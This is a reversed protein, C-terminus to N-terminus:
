PKATRFAMRSSWRRPRSLSIGPEASMLTGNVKLFSGGPGPNRDLVIQGNATITLSGSTTVASGNDLYLTGAVTKLGTLASNGSTESADAIFAHSGVLDLLSDYAITTIQGKGFEILADGSLSVNGYVTGATGFGAASAVDLTVEATSSGLLDITGYYDPDSPDSTNFNVIRAADFTSAASLASNGAVVTGSNTLVGGITLSSGGDGSDVDLELGCGTGDHGITVGGTVSNAGADEFDLSGNKNIRISAVTGFSATVTPNGARLAGIEVDSSATPLGASWDSPTDWNGEQVLWTDAAM